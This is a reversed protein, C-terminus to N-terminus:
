NQQSNSLSELLKDKFRQHRFYWLSFGILSIFVGAGLLVLSAIKSQYIANKLFNIKKIQAKNKLENKTTERLNSQLEVVKSKLLAIKSLGEEFEKKLAKKNMYNIKSILATLTSADGSKVVYDIDVEKSIEAIESELSLMDATIWERETKLIENGAQLELAQAEYEHNQKYILMSYFILILGGISMFKYLNDTPMNPINIM